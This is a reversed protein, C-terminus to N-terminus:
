TKKRGKIGNGISRFDGMGFRIRLNEKQCCLFKFHIRLVSGYNLIGHGANLRCLRRAHDTNSDFIGSLGSDGIDSCIGKQINFLLKEIKLQFSV